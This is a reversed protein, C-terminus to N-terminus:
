MSSHRQPKALNDTQSLYKDEWRGGGAHARQYLEGRGLDKTYQKGVIVGNSFADVAVSSQYTASLFTNLMNPNIIALSLDANLIQAIVTGGNNSILQTVTDSSM